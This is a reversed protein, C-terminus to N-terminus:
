KGKNNYPVTTDVTTKLNTIMDELLELKNKYKEAVNLVNDYCTDNELGYLKAIQNFKAARNELYHYEHDKLLKM